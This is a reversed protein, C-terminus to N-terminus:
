TKVEKAADFRIVNLRKMMTEAEREILMLCLFLQHESGGRAIQGLQAVLQAMVVLSDYIELDNVAPM